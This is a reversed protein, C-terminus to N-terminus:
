ECLTGRYYFYPSLYIQKKHNWEDEDQVRLLLELAELCRRHISINVTTLPPSLFGAVDDDTGIIKVQDPIRLGLKYIYQMIGATFSGTWGLIGDIDPMLKFAKETAKYGAITFNKEKYIDAEAMVYQDESLGIKRVGDMFGQLHLYSSKNKSVDTSIFAMKRCGEEYLKEVAMKGGSRLDPIICTIEPYVINSFESIMVIPVKSNKIYNVTKNDLECMPMFPIFIGRINQKSIIKLVDILPMECLDYIEPMVKYGCEQALDSFNSQYASGVLTKGSPPLVIAFVKYRKEEKGESVTYGLENMAKKIARAKEESVYGSNNIYRSITANSVGARRAVDSLKIKKYLEM